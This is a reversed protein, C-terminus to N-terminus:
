GFSDNPRCSGMGVREAELIQHFSRRYSVAANLDMIKLGLLPAKLGAGKCHNSIRAESKSRKMDANQQRTRQGISHQLMCYSFIRSAKTLALKDTPIAQRVNVSIHSM